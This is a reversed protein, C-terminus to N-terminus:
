FLHHNEFNNFNFDKSFKRSYPIILIHIDILTTHCCLDNMCELQYHFTSPLPDTHYLLWTYTTVHAPSIQRIHIGSARPSHTYMDPLDWSGMNCTIHIM